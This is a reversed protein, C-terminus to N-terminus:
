QVPAHAVRPLAHRRQAEIASRNSRVLYERLSPLEKTGVDYVRWHGQVDVLDLELRRTEPPSADAFRLDIHAVAHSASTPRVLGIKVRMGGSDQCDCIPDGDIAGVDGQPTLRADERILAVMSPDFVAKASRGAPDYTPADDREPYHSYLQTVFAKASGLDACLSPPSSAMATCAVAIFALPAPKM